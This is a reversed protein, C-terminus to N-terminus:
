GFSLKFLEGDGLITRELSQGFFINLLSKGLRRASFFWDKIERRMKSFTNTDTPGVVIAQCAKQSNIHNM